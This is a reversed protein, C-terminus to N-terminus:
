PNKQVIMANIRPLGPNEELLAIVDRLSFNPNVPYLRELIEKILAFDEPTDVTLRYKGWDKNGSTKMWLKYREPRNWIYYTVHERDPPAAGERDAERLTELSCIETDMGRPYTSTDAACYDVEEFHEIYHRIVADSIQPDILPCDGSVRVVADAGFYEAAERYRSLVDFESGRYVPVSLKGCLEAVPNDTDNATTAVVIADLSPVRGLRELEYRLLPRGLVERLIKGPLRTSTSRAQVICVVRM